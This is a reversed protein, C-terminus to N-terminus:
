WLYRKIDILCFWRSLVSGSLEKAKTRCFLNCQKSFDVYLYMTGREALGLEACVTADHPHIPMQLDSM